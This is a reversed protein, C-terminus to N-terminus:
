NNESFNTDGIRSLIGQKYEYEGMHHFFKKIREETIVREKLLLLENGLKDRPIKDKDVTM